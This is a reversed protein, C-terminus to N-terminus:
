RFYKRFPVSLRVEQEPSVRSVSEKLLETLGKTVALGIGTSRYGPFSGAKQGILHRLSM